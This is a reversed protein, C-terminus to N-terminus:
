LTKIEWIDDFYIRMADIVIYRYPVNKDIVRGRTTIYHGNCYFMVEINMGQRLKILMNNLEACTEDPVERKEIRTHKEEKKLLAEQLGHVDFPKFQAARNVKRIM